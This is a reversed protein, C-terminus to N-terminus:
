KTPGIINGIRGVNEYGTLPNRTSNGIFQNMGEMELSHIGVIEMSHIGLIQLILPNRTNGVPTFKKLIELLLPKRSNGVLAKM